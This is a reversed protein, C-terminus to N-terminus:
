VEVHLEHDVKFSFARNYHTETPFNGDYKTAACGMLVYKETLTAGVTRKGVLAGIKKFGTTIDSWKTKGAAPSGTVADGLIAAVFTSNYILETLDATKELSLTKTLKKAAGDIASSITTASTSTKVGQSTAIHTLATTEIDIYTVTVVDDAKIGTYGIHTTGTTDTAADAGSTGAFEVAVIPAGNKELWVSGYEAKKVLAFKTATVDAATITHSEQVLVGGHYWRVEKGTPIDESQVM